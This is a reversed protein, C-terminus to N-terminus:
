AAEKPHRDLFWQHYNKFGSYLYSMDTLSKCHETLAPMTLERTQTNPCYYKVETYSKLHPVAHNVLGSSFMIVADDSLGDNDTVYALFDRLGVFLLCREHGGTPAKVVAVDAHCVNHTLGQFTILGFGGSENPLGFGYGTTGKETSCYSVQSCYKDAVEEPIGDNMLVRRISGSFIGTCRTIKMDSSQRVTIGGVPPETDCMATFSIWDWAAEPPLGQLRSVLDVINGGGSGDVFHWHNKAKDVNVFGLNPGLYYCATWQSEGIPIYGLAGLFAVISFDIVKKM